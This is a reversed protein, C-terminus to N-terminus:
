MYLPTFTPRFSGQGQPLPLFNLFHQPLFRYHASMKGAADESEAPIKTDQAPPSPRADGSMGFPARTQALSPAAHLRFRPLAPFRKESRGAASSVGPGRFRRM